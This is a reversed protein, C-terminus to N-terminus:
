HSICASCRNDIGIIASDTDFRVKRETSITANVQMALVTMPTLTARKRLSTSARFLRRRKSTPKCSWEIFNGVSTTAQLAANYLMGKGAEVSKRWRTRIRRRHPTKKVLIVAIGFIILQLVRYMILWRHALTAMVTHILTSLLQLTAMAYNLTLNLAPSPQLWQWVLLTLALTM